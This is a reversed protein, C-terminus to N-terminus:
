RKRSVTFHRGRVLKTFEGAIDRWGEYEEPRAVRIYTFYEAVFAFFVGAMLSFVLMAGVIVTRRPSSHREPPQAYDLVTLTPADRAELVMAYEYQEYLTAYAEEQIKFDQYRRAFQAAVGPLNEFSVGFGVGFGGGGGQELKRLEDRSAQTERRLQDVYPNDDSAGSRAAEYEAEQVSLESKMKAYADIAAKTEDDVSAVRNAQQFVKLSEGAAALSAELQGLRKEIFIRMNHGRSINSYRLFSDLEAVYANAIRAALARTKAEASIRIIGNDAAALKTMGKLQLVMKEPSPKQMGYYEAISCQEAVHQMVTRSGLIGLMLDSSTTSGTLGAKLKSLGGGSGGLLSTLGFVDNEDGPPLIQATARYSRPLTLSVVLAIATLILTNWFILRRWKLIVSLYKVLRNM